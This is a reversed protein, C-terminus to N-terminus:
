SVGGVKEKGKKSFLAFLLLFSLPLFQILHAAVRRERDGPMRPFFLLSPKRRQPFSFHGGLFLSLSPFFSCGCHFLAACFTDYNGM